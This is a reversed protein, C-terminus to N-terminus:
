HWADRRCAHRIGGTGVARRKVLALPYAILLIRTGFARFPWPVRGWPVRAEHWAGKPLCSGPLLATQDSERLAKAAALQHAIGQHAHRTDWYAVARADLM